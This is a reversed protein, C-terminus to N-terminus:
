LNNNNDALCSFDTQVLQEEVLEFLFWSNLALVDLSQRLLNPVHVPFTLSVFNYQHNLWM